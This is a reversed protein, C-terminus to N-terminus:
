DEQTETDEKVVNEDNGEIETDYVELNNNEESNDYSNEEKIEDDILDENKQSSEQLIEEKLETNEETEDDSNDSKMSTWQEELEEETLNNEELYNSFQESSKIDIKWGTLKAALRVNQGEKGIALSLQYDPVIALASNEKENVFVKEVKSPSLANSIFEAIDKKYIVIDIKENNLEEVIANVRQGKYGVCAGLPDVEEDKSFVAIKTRSGAERSISYIEVIGETVEPIELEFLRKVLDPHSRTLIIQPGKTSKKVELILMKYRDGQEYRENKIQESYPLIAETKGLDVYVNNNSVRQVTGTIIEREREVYEDYVVERQADKIRQMVVQKATQAAIRGFNKPHIEKNYVDGIEYTPDIEKARDISIEIQPDTVEEVIDKASFLKIDGTERDMQVIVNQSTGYNKKYSSVLASELAEFIIEKSVGKEKEIETLANIFEENM